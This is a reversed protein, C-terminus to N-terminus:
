GGHSAMTRRIPSCSSLTPYNTIKDVVPTSRATAEHINKEARRDSYESQINYVIFDITSVLQWITEM